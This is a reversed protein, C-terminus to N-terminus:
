SVCAHDSATGESSRNWGNFTHKKVGKKQLLLEQLARIESQVHKKEEEPAEYAVLEQLREELQPLYESCDIMSLAQVYAEKVFLKDKKRM